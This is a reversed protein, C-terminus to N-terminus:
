KKKWDKKETPPEPTAEMVVRDEVAVVDAVKVSVVASVPKPALAAQRVAKERVFWAPLAGFALVKKQELERDRNPIFSLTPFDASGGDPPIPKGKYIKTESTLNFVRM